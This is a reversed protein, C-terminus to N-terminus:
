LRFDSSIKTKIRSFKEKRNEMSVMHDLELQTRAKARELEEEGVKTMTGAFDAETKQVALEDWIRKSALWAKMMGNDKDSYTGMVVLDVPLGNAQAEAQKALMHAGTSLKIGDAVVDAASYLAKQGLLYLKGAYESDDYLSDVREGARVAYAYKDADSIGPDGAIASLINKLQWLKAIMNDEIHDNAETVISKVEDTYHKIGNQVHYISKVVIKEETEKINDRTVGALLNGDSDFHEIGEVQAWNTDALQWYSDVGDKRTNFDALAASIDNELDTIDSNVESLSIEADPDIIKEYILDLIEDAVTGVRQGNKIVPWFKLQLEDSDLKQGIRQEINTKKNGVTALVSRYSGGGFFEKIDADPNRWVCLSAVAMSLPVVV